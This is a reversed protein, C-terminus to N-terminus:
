ASGQDILKAFRRFTLGLSDVETDAGGATIKVRILRRKDSSRTAHLQKRLINTESTGSAISAADDSYDWNVIITPATGEYSVIAEYWKKNQSKHRMSLRKSVWYWNSKRTASSYMDYLHGDSVAALVEGKKGTCIGNTTGQAEWLNWIKRVINYSWVLAGKAHAANTIFVTFCKRRSDFGIKPSYTSVSLLDLYGIGADSTLISDGIPIPTQGTHLYVNHNDAYCMGYDSVAIADPGICGAGEFTDEIFFSNPEIRYTASETFAYIRGNFAKIATPVSPLKLFDLAWNILSPKYAVSKYIINSAEDQSDHDCKAIFLSSNLQTSLSYKVNSDTMGELLGSM